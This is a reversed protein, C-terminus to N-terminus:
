EASKGDEAPAEEEYESSTSKYGYRALNWDLWKSIFDGSSTYRQMMEIGRAFEMGREYDEATGPARDICVVAAARGRGLLIFDSVGGKVLKRAEPVIRAANAFGAKSFDWEGYRNAWGFARKAFQCPQFVINTTVNKSKLVEDAGKKIVAEVTTKFLDAKAEALAKPSVLNKVAAFEPTHSESVGALQFVWLSNATSVVNLDNDALDRVKNGFDAVDIGPFQLQVRKGFGALENGGFSFWDSTLVKVGKKAAFEDLFKATKEKETNEPMAGLVEEELAARAAENKLDVIIRERVEELPKVNVVDNTTAVDYVGSEKNEEYRAKIQEDTVTVKALLNSALPNFKLYRVKYRDPLEFSAKNDNYWKLMAADDLKVKDAAVKDETFTAIRVTFKDTFDYCAQEREASSMGAESAAVASLGAQLTLAMRFYREFQGVSMRLNTEVYNRYYASDFAGTKPNFFLQLAKIRESLTEDSVKVGAEDFATFAAYAKWPSEAKSPDFFQTLGVFDLFKNRVLYDCQQHLDADYEVEPLKNYAAAGRGSDSGYLCGDPAVFAASVILAFVGWVWKNRILKNFKLIVM